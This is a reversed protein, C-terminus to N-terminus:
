HPDRVDVVVANNLGCAADRTLLVEVLDAPVETFFFWCRLSVPLDSTEWVSHEVKGEGNSCLGTLKTGHLSGDLQM